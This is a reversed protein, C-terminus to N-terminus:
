GLLSSLSADLDTGLSGIQKGNVFITPTSDVGYKNMLALNARAAGEAEKRELKSNFAGLGISSAVNELALTSEMVDMGKEFKARFLADRMEDGKGMQEAIIYAEISKTSQKPFIIPVYTITVNDGYKELIGPMEKHLNYCHICDFKMFEVIKVKGPEPKFIDQTTDQPKQPPASTIYIAVAAIFLVALGVYVITKNSKKEPVKQKKKAM